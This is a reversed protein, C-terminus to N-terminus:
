RKKERRFGSNFNKRFKNNDDRVYYNIIKCPDKKYLQEMVTHM